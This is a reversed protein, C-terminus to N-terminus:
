LYYQKSQETLIKNVTKNMFNNVFVHEHLMNSHVNRTADNDGKLTLTISAEYFSRTGEQETQQFRKHLIPLIEENQTQYFEGTLGQLSPIKKLKSNM